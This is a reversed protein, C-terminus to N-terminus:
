CSRSLRNFKDGGLFSRRFRGGLNPNIDTYMNESKYLSEMIM